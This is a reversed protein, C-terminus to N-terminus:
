LQHSKVFDSVLYSILKGTSENKRGDELLVAGEAIHLYAVKVDTAAFNIYQRAQIAKIGCPTAASSLVNEVSDLYM